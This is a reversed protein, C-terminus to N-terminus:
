RPRVASISSSTFRSVLEKVIQPAFNKLVNQPVMDVVDEVTYRHRIELKIEGFGAQELLERYQKITLAGAICGVWSLATRIQEESLPLGDLNKDIVIDSVALRGGPKLVRFAEKLVRAKDSALNIVCNSIIVDISAEPLPISEIDGKLFKVNALGAREANQNALTLMEDTMDLGYVFGKAGVHKAALLVDIGGGSGLDLVTEGSKLSALAVPNGCGRSSSAAETPVASLEENTYLASEDGSCCSSAVGSCCASGEACAGSVAGQAVKGYHDRVAEKIQEPAIKTRAM